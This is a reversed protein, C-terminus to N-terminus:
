GANLAERTLAYAREHVGNKALLDAWQGLVERLVGKPGASRALEAAEEYSVLADETRGLAVQAKAMTVLASTIAQQYPAEEAEQRAREALELAAEPRGEALAIQASTDDVHALWRDDHLREFRVRAADALEAARALNGNALYSLALNNEIAASEAEAGSARYLVLSQMGTRIAAENDGTARYSYALDFLYNARRRDDLDTAFGHVEQLYALAQGHQGEYSEISSLAMLVRVTFDPEVPLGARIRDLVGRILSRAEALNEQLYQAYGLWYTALAADSIQGAATFLRVSEAADAAADSPRNLRANAEARARLLEARPQDEVLGELLATYGDVANDWRGAALNLDAELRTWAPTENAILQSATTGLREAFFTLATMSPRVLGNELASVYAKTYHDSALQQQTLGARLRAQKLRGGIRDALAHDAIAPRPHRTSTRM